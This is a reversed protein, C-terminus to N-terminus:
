AASGGSAVINTLPGRGGSISVDVPILIILIIGGYVAASVILYVAARTCLRSRHVAIGRISPFAGWSTAWEGGTDRHCLGWLECALGFVRGILKIDCSAGVWEIIRIHVAVLDRYTFPDVLYGM